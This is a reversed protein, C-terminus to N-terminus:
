GPRVSNVSRWSAQEWPPEGLTARPWEEPLEGAEGAGPAVLDVVEEALLPAMALKTPWALVFGPEVESVQVGSPRRIEDNAAEFFPGPM